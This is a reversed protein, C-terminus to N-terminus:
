RLSQEEVSGGGRLNKLYGTLHQNLVFYRLGQKYDLGAFEIKSKMIRERIIEGTRRSTLSSFLAVM